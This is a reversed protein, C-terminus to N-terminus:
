FATGLITYGKKDDNCVSAYGRAGLYGIWLFVVCIYLGMLNFSKSLFVTYSAICLSLLVDEEFM